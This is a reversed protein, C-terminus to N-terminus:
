KSELEEIRASLEKVAQVLLPVLKSHDISQYKPDDNEDIEDKLGTIAQPVVEMVEHALLGDVITSESDRKFSFRKPKLQKIRDVGGTMDTINEKLRYDSATNYSVGSTNTTILGVSTTSYKFEVLNGSSNLRTVTLGTKDNAPSLSTMGNKDVVLRVAGSSTVDRIQFQDAGGTPDAVDIAFNRTDNTLNLTATDNSSTISMTASAKSISVNGAFTANGGTTLNFVSAVNGNKFHLVNDDGENYIKWFDENTAGADSVLSISADGNSTDTNKISLAGATSEISVSGAFTANGSDDLILTNESSKTHFRINDLKNGNYEGIAIDDSGNEGILNIRAGGDDNEGILYKGSGLIVNGASLTANGGFTANGSQDVSFKEGYSGYSFGIKEAAGSGGIYGVISCAVNSFNDNSWRIEGMSHQQGSGPSRSAEFELIGPDSLANGIRVYTSGSTETIHLKREPTDTGIGVKGNHDIRMREDLTTTTNDVTLFSLYSGRASGSWTEDAVGLIRAGIEFSDGDSGNFSIAGLYDGADVVTHSGVTANMSSRFQIEGMTSAAAAYSSIFMIPQSRALELQVAPNNTGIGVNGSGTIRMVEESSTVAGDNDATDQLFVFDNEGWGGVRKVGFWSKINGDGTNSETSFGMGVYDGNTNNTNQIVLHGDVDFGSVSKVIDLPSTPSTTGIGVNGSSADWVMIEAKAGGMLRLYDAGSNMAFEFKETNNDLVFALDGAQKVHLKPVFGFDSAPSDTGIGVNGNSAIRLQEVPNAGNARTYFTM